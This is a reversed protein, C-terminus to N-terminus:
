YDRQTFTPESTRINKLKRMKGTKRKEWFSGPVYCMHNRHGWPSTTIILDHSSTSYAGGIPHYSRLTQRSSEPNILISSHSLDQQNSNVKIFLLKGPCGGTPDQGVSEKRRVATSHLVQNSPLLNKALKPVISGLNERGTLLLSSLLPQAKCVWVGAHVIELIPILNSYPTIRVGIKM